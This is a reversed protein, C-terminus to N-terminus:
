YNFWFIDGFSLGDLYDLISEDYKQKASSGFVVEGFYNRETGVINNKELRPLNSSCGEHAIDPNIQILEYTTGYMLNGRILFHDAAHGGAWSKIHAASQKDPRQECFGKGAYWMYNDSILFNDIKGKGIYDDTDRPYDLWYEISYNCYEIVNRSYNVNSQSMERGERETYQQTIAADYIQYIYNDTVTFGDCGGWIQVANGFRTAYNRGYIGESQISGGIWAFECNTVTLNTITGAGIGHSGTYKICFNDIVVNSVGDRIDIAHGKTNLNISSFRAGPNGKASYLYLKGSDRYDHWFHLDLNLSQYGHWASGTTNNYTSGDGETRIICKIAHAEGENFVLTGVDNKDLQIMWINEYNTETWLSPDAADIPSRYLKPKAGIGYATYTVGTHPDLQGRWLGGREFCVYSGQKLRANNVKELTQWATAPSKGDNKDNGGNSVYYVDAGDPISLNPSNLIETIRTDTEARWAATQEDTLVATKSPPLVEPEPGKRCGTLASFPLLALTLLASLTIVMKKM